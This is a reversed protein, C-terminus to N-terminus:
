RLMLNIAIDAETVPSNHEKVWTKIPKGIAAVAIAGAERVVSALANALGPLDSAGSRDSGRM